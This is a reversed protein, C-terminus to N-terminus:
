VLPKLVDDFLATHIIESTLVQFLYLKECYAYYKNYIYRFTLFM